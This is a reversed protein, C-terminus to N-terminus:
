IQKLRRFFPLTNSEGSFMYNQCIACGSISLGSRFGSRFGSRLGSRRGTRTNSGSRWLQPRVQGGRVRWLATPSGKCAAGQNNAFRSAHKQEYMWRRGTRIGVKTRWVLFNLLSMYTHICQFEISVHSYGFLKYYYDM